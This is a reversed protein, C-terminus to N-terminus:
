LWNQAKIQGEFLFFQLSILKLNSLNVEKNFTNTLEEQIM